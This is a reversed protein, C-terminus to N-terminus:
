PIGTHYKLGECWPIGTHYKVAGSMLTYWHSIECGGVVGMVGVGVSVLVAVSVELGGM